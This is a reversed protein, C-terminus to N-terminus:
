SLLLLVVAGKTLHMSSILIWTQMRKRNRVCEKLIGVAWKNKYQRYVESYRQDEEEFTKTTRFRNEAMEAM